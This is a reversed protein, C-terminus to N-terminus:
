LWMCAKIFWIAEKSSFWFCGQFTTDLSFTPQDLTVSPVNNPSITIPVRKDSASAAIKYSANLM